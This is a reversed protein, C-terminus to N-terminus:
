RPQPLTSLLREIGVRRTKQAEDGALTALVMATLGSKALDRIHDLALERAEVTLQENEADQASSILSRDIPRIPDSPAKELLTRLEVSVELAKERVTPYKDQNALCRLTEAARGCQYVIQSLASRYYGDDRGTQTVLNIATQYDLTDKSYRGTTWWMERTVWAVTMLLLVAAAAQLLPQRFRRSRLTGVVGRGEVVPAKTAVEVLAQVETAPLPAVEGLAQLEAEAAAMEAANPTHADLVEAWMRDDQVSM